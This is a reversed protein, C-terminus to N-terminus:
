FVHLFLIVFVSTGEVCSSFMQLGFGSFGDWNGVTSVAKLVLVKTKNKTISPNSSRVGCKSPLPKVM